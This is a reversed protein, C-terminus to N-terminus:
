HISKRLANVGNEIGAPNKFIASASVFTDAGANYMVPLTVPDIGGDVELHARSDIADLMRRAKTVKEITKPLFKQGSYGPNVSMVLVLDVLNLVEEIHKIPTGPNLTIGANCGLKKIEQLLCHINPSVEIHVTLNSAGANAFDKILTDPNTIMLHVDLPLSTIRACHEVIFPGMTLNPVFHGDMVDIHIWDVGADEVQRIQDGLYTFDASLISSSIIIKKQSM